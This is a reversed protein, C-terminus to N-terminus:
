PTGGPLASLVKGRAISYVMLGAGAFILLPGLSWLTKLAAGGVAGGVTAAVDGVAGGASGVLAGANAITAKVWKDMFNENETAIRFGEHVDFTNRMCLAVSKRQAESLKQPATGLQGRVKSFIIANQSLLTKLQERYDSPVADIQGRLSQVSRESIALANLAKSKDAFELSKIAIPLGM